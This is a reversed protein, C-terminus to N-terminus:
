PNVSIQWDFEPNYLGIKISLLIGRGQLARM